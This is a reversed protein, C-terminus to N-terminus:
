PEETIEKYTLKGKEAIVILNDGNRFGTIQQLEKPITVCLTQTTRGRSSNRSGVKVIKM